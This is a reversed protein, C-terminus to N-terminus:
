GDYDRPLSLSIGEGLPIGHVSFHGDAGVPVVVSDWAKERSLIVRTEPPLSTGDTIHLRGNLTGAKQIELDGVDCTTDDAGTDMVRLPPAGMSALSEMTGYLAIKDKPPVCWIQFTGNASTVAEVEDVFTQAGRDIQSAAMTVGPVATGNQLVRGTILVGRGLKVNVPKPVGHSVPSEVKVKAYGVAHVELLGRM